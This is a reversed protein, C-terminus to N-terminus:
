NKGDDAGGKMQLSYKLPLCEALTEIDEGHNEPIIEVYDEIAKDECFDQLVCSTCSKSYGYGGAKTNECQRVIKAFENKTLNIIM